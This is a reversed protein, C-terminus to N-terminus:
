SEESTSIRIEGSRVRTDLLLARLQANEQELYAVKALLQDTTLDEM